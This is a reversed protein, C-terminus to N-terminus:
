EGNIMSPLICCEKRWPRNWFFWTTHINTWFPIYLVYRLVNTICSYMHTDKLLYFIQLKSGGSQMDTAALEDRWAM